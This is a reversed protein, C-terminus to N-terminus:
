FVFVLTAPTIELDLPTRQSVASNKCPFLPKREEIRRRKRQNDNREPSRLGSETRRKTVDILVKVQFSRDAKLSIYREEKQPHSGIVQLAVTLLYVGKGLM